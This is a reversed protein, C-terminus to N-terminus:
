WEARADSGSKEGLFRQGPFLDDLRKAIEQETERAADASDFYIV